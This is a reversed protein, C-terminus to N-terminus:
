KNLYNIFNFKIKFILCYIGIRLVAQANLMWELRTEAFILVNDHDRIGNKLLGKAIHDIRQNIENFSYWIYDGLILKRFVKGDAQTEDEEGLVPRYGFCNKDKYVLCAKTFLESVTKCDNIFSTDPKSVSTWASYPNNPVMQRAKV